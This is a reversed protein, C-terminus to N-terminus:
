GDYLGMFAGFKSFIILVCKGLYCFFLLRGLGSETSGPAGGIVSSSSVFAISFILFFVAGPRSPAGSRTSSIIRRSRLPFSLVKRFLNRRIPENRFSQFTALRIISLDLFFSISEWQRKGIHKRFSIPLINSLITVFLILECMEFIPGFM